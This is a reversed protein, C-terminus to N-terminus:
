QVSIRLLEEATEPKPHSEQRAAAAVEPKISAAGEGGWQSRVYDLVIAIEEDSLNERWPPMVLNWTKGHVQIPGNLGNLVIRVLREGSAAQVWESGDLPPAVGDKGAGDQQHCAVCLKQYIVRGKNKADGSAGMVWQMFSRVVPDPTSYSMYVLRNTDIFFGPPSDLSPANTKLQERLMALALSDQRLNELEKENGAAKALAAERVAQAEQLQKQLISNQAALNNLASQRALYGGLGGLFAAALIAAILTTRSMTNINQCRARFEAGHELATKRDL